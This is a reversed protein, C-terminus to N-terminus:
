FLKMAQKGEYTFPLTKYFGNKGAKATGIAKITVERQLALNAANKLLNRMDLEMSVPLGFEALKPIKMLTDLHIEGLLVEEVYVKADVKKLDVSFNNPNYYVLDMQLQSKSFGLQNMKINRIDRYEFDKPKSCASFLLAFVVCFSLLPLLLSSGVSKQV